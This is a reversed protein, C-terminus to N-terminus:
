QTTNSAFFIAEIMEAWLPSGQTILTRGTTTRIRCPLCWPWPCCSDLQAHPAKQSTWESKTKSIDEALVTEENYFVDDVILFSILFINRRIHFLPLFNKCLPLFCVQFILCFLSRTATFSPFLQLLSPLLLSLM